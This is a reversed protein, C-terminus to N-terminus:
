PLKANTKPSTNHDKLWTEIAEREYTHGDSAFVPDCMIEMRIPCLFENPINDLDDNDDKELLARLIESVEDVTKQVSILVPKFSVLASVCMNHNEQHAIALATRGDVLSAEPDAGHEYLLIRIINDQNGLCAFMLGM